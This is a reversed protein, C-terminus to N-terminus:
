EAILDTGAQLNATVKLSVWSAVMGVAIGAVTDILRLIPQLCAHRPSIAAVVMVVAITIGTTIIDDTRGALTLVIAGIGILSAM